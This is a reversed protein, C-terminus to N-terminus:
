RELFSPARALLHDIAQRAVPRKIRWLVRSVRYGPARPRILVHVHEPMIVYAWVDFRELARARGIAEVVWGRTRDRSLLPLRRHCSFTLEHADGPTDYRRCRKRAM